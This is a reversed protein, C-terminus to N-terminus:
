EWDKPSGMWQPIFHWRWLPVSRQRSRVGLSWVRHKYSCLPYAGASKARAEWSKPWFHVKLDLSTTWNTCQRGLMCLTRFEIRLELCVPHPLECRYDWCKLPSFPLRSAQSVSLWPPSSCSPLCLLLPPPFSPPLSSIFSVPLFFAPLFTEEISVELFSVM